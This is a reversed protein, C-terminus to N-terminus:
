IPLTVSVPALLEDADLVVIALADAVTNRQFNLTVTVSQGQRLHPREYVVSGAVTGLTADSLAPLASSTGLKSDSPTISLSVDSLGKPSKVELKVTAKGDSGRDSDQSSASATQNLSAEFTIVDPDYKVVKMSYDYIPGPLTYVVM